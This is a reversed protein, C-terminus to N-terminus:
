PSCLPIATGSIQTSIDVPKGSLRNLRDASAPSFHNEILQKTDALNPNETVTDEDFISDLQLGIRDFSGRATSASGATRSIIRITARGCRTKRLSLTGRSTNARTRKLTTLVFYATSNGGLAAFATPSIMEASTTM